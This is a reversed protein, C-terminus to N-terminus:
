SRTSTDENDQIISPVRYTDSEYDSGGRKGETFAIFESTESTTHMTHVEGPDSTVLDGVVCLVMEIKAQPESGRYWYELEGKTVLISQTSELHYHNGRIAGKVSHIISVHNLSAKVFVDAITGREDSHVELPENGGEFVNVKKM